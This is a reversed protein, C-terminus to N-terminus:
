LGERGPTEGGGDRVDHSVHNLSRFWTSWEKASALHQGTTKQLYGMAEAKEQETGIWLLGILNQQVLLSEHDHLVQLVGASACLHSLSLAINTPPFINEVYQWPLNLLATQVQGAYRSSDSLDSTLLWLSIEQANRMASFGDILEGAIRCFERNGEKGLSARVQYAFLSDLMKRSTSVSRLYSHALAFWLARRYHQSIISDAESKESSYQRMQRLMIGLVNKSKVLELSYPTKPLPRSDAVYDPMETRASLHVFEGPCNIPLGDTTTWFVCVSDRGFLRDLYHALYYGYMPEGSGQRYINKDAKERQLHAGGYFLLAHYDPHEVLFRHINDSSVIDREEVFWHLSEAKVSDMNKWALISGERFQEPGIIKLDLVPSSAKRNFESVKGSVGWLTRAFEIDDVTSQGRWMVLHEIYPAIDGAGLASDIELQQPSRELFLVIKFPFSRNPTWLRDSGRSDKVALIRGADQLWYNLIGIALEEYYGNGHYSDGIMVIRKTSLENFALSDLSETPYRGVIKPLDHSVNGCGALTLLVCCFLFLRPM